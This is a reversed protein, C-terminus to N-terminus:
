DAATQLSCFTVAFRTGVGHDGPLIRLAGGIQYVLSRVIKMGLGRSQAPDFGAPLGPGDDSVSLTHVGTSATEFRVSINGQAYKVSNTILENVILGLPIGLATPIEVNEGEVVIAWSSGEPVLLGALDECLHELYQKFEVNRQHDLLHLRRHVRGLADVRRSAIILQASAEATVTQSQLSLLSAIMQLGNILRHEFEQRLMDHHRLLESKEARLTEERALSAQLESAREAGSERNDRRVAPRSPFHLIPERVTSFISM